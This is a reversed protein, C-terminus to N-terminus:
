AENGPMRCGALHCVHKFHAESVPQISLRMGRKAVMIGELEKAQKIKELPLIEKFAAVFAVDVLFWLPKDPTSREDFYRSKSDFAAADPYAQSAIKAVGAVGSPDANSHYFLVLDGVRMSDRMFNRAQYNRVGEWATKGDRQLDKISYVSPESKMLWFQVKASEKMPGARFQNETLM